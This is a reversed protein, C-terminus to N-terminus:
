EWQVSSLVFSLSNVLLGLTQLHLLQPEFGCMGSEWSTPNQDSSSSKLQPM